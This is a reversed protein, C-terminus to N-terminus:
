KCSDLTGTPILFLGNPICSNRCLNDWLLTLAYAVTGIPIIPLFLKANISQPERHKGVLFSFSYICKNTSNGEIDSFCRFGGDFVLFRRNGMIGKPITAYPKTPCGKEFCSYAAFANLELYFYSFNVTTTWTISLAFNPSKVNTNQLPHLLFIVLIVFCM